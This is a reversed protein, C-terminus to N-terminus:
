QPTWEYEDVVNGEADRLTAVDGSNNWREVPSGWYLAVESNAGSGTYVFVFSGARIVFGEPFEFYAGVNNELTWGSMDIDMDSNNCIKVWEKNLDLNDDGEPDFQVQCIIVPKVQEVIEFSSVMKEFIPLYKNYTSIVSTYTLLYLNDGKIAGVQVTISLEGALEEGTIYVIKHAPNDEMTTATSEIVRLEPYEEKMAALERDVYQHIDAPDGPQLKRVSVIVNEQVTDRENELPSYFIVADMGEVQEVTWQSYYKVRFGLKLDEYVTFDTDPLEEREEAAGEVLREAATVFGSIGPEFDELTYVELAQGNGVVIEDVHDLDIDKVILFEPQSSIAISSTVMQSFDPLPISEGELSAVAEADITFMTTHNVLLIQDDMVTIHLLPPPLRVEGLLDGGRTVYLTDYSIFFTEEVGDGDVDYFQFDNIHEFTTYNWLINGKMDYVTLFHEWNEDLIGSVVLEKKRDHNIDSIIFKSIRGSVPLDSVWTGENDFIVVRDGKGYLNVAVYNDYCYLGRPSGPVHKRWELIGKDNFVYLDGEDGVLVDCAVIIEEKGNHDLDFCTLAKIERSVHYYWKLNNNEYVYIAGRDWPDSVVRLCGFVYDYTTDRDLDSIDMATVRNIDLDKLWLVPGRPIYEFIRRKMSTVVEKTLERTAGAFIFYTKGRVEKIFLNSAGPTRVYEQETTDLLTRVLEGIGQPSDPGGLIVYNKYNQYSPFQQATIPIVDFSQRLYKILSSSYDISNSVVVIKKSEMELSGSLLLLVLVAALVKRM